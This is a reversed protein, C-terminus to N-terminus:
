VKAKGLFYYYFTGITDSAFQCRIVIYQSVSLKFQKGLENYRYLAITFKQIVLEYPWDMLSLITKMGSLIRVMSISLPLETYM